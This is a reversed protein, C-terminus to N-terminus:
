RCGPCRNNIWKEVAIDIVQMVAEFDDKDDMRRTKCRDELLVKIQETLEHNM